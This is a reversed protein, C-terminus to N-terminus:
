VASRNNFMSHWTIKAGGEIINQLRSRILFNREGLLLSVFHVHCCWVLWWKILPASSIANGRSRLRVASPWKWPRNWSEPVDNDPNNAPSFEALSAPVHKDFCMLHLVPCLYFTNFIVWLDKQGRLSDLDKCVSVLLVFAFSSRGEPLADSRIADALM